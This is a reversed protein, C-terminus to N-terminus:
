SHPEAEPLEGYSDDSWEEPWADDAAAYAEHEDWAGEDTWGLLELFKAFVILTVYALVVGLVFNAAFASIEGRPLGVIQGLASGVPLVVFPNDIKRQVIQDFFRLFFAFAAGYIFVAYWGGEAGAHGVVGPGIKLIDQSVGELDAQRAILTSLPYPKEDWWARPVPYYFFYKLGMLHRYEYREPYNEILWLSVPVTGQGSALDQLGHKVSSQTLLARVQQNLTPREQSARISTFAALFLVPPIALIALRTLVGLRPLTRWHSFYMGWLVCGGIAVISRRGFAGSLQIGLNALIIAIAIMAVIPNFLRRAWIWGLMGAAIASFSPGLKGTLTSILPVNFTFRFVGALLTLVVAILIMTAMGPAARTVPALRALKGAGLGMSYCVLFTVLFATAMLCYTLSTEEWSSLMYRGSFRQLMPEVGSTLQFIVFGALFFNRLSLLEDKGQLYRVVIFGVTLVSLMLLYLACLTTM